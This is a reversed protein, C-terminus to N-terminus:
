SMINQKRVNLADGNLKGNTKRVREEGHKFKRAISIKVNKNICYM